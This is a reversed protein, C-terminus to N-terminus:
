EEEASASLSEIEDVDITTFVGKPNSLRDLDQIEEETSANSCYPYLELEGQLKDSKSAYGEMIKRNKDGYSEMPNKFKIPDLNLSYIYKRFKTSKSADLPVREGVSGSRTLSELVETYLIAKIFDNQDAVNEHMCSLAKNTKTPINKHWEYLDKWTFVSDGVRSPIELGFKEEMQKLHYEYADNLHNIHDRSVKAQDMLANVMDLRMKELNDSVEARVDYNLGDIEEALKHIRTRQKDTLRDYDISELSAIMENVDDLIFNVHSCTGAYTNVIDMLAKIHKILIPSSTLEDVRTKLYIEPKIEDLAKKLEPYTEAMVLLHTSIQGMVIRRM